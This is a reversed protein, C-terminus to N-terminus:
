SCISRNDSNPLLYIDYGNGIRTTNNNRYYLKDIIITNDDYMIGSMVIFFM